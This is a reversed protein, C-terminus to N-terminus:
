PIHSPLGDRPAARTCWIPPDPAPPLARGPGSLEFKQLFARVEAVDLGGRYGSAFKVAARTYQVFEDYKGQAYLVRALALRGGADDGFLQVTKRLHMEAEPYRELEAFLKGLNRHTRWSDPDAKLGRQLWTLAGERDGLDSAIIARNM